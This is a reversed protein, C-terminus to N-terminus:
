MERSDVTITLSKIPDQRNNINISRISYCNRQFPLHQHEVLLEQSIRLAGYIFMRQWPFLRPSFLRRWVISAATCRTPAGVAPCWTADSPQLWGLCGVDHFSQLLIDWTAWTREAPKQLQLPQWVHPMCIVKNWTHKNTDTQVVIADVHQHHWSTKLNELSGPMSQQVNNSRNYHEDDRM